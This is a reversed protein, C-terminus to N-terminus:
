RTLIAIAHEVHEKTLGDEFKTHIFFPLQEDLMDDDDDLICFRDVPNRQLWDAIEDGRKPPPNLFDGNSTLEPTRWDAHFRGSYGSRKLKGRLGKDARWVSSVVVVAGTRQCIENLLAITDAPIRERPNQKWHRGALIVGDIDLFIVIM